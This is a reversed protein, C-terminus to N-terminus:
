FTIRYLFMPYFGQQYIKQISKTKANFSSNYINKHDTINTLDLAWEQTMKKGNMKYAIRGDLRFYPDEKVEYAKTDDYVTEGAEISKDLDIFLNRKGGSFIVRLNMDISSKENLQIEYGALANVVYNTNFETNRWVADSAKYKSDFLSTTLLFYYNNSLYKELTIEAGYNRALGENVLNEVKAQNFSNGSNVMSFLSSEKTIPINTLHQYYTEIKLKIQDSLQHDYGSVFHHAKTLDLNNNTQSYEGTERNYTETFYVYLPQIQAHKGYAFSVKAANPLTYSISARPDITQTQNYLFNIYHLGGYLTLNGNIRHQWEGFGEMLNLGSEETDLEMIYQNYLPPNFVEGSVSDKYNIVFSQWEIGAKFTNKSNIKRTYKSTLGFRTEANTEGFFIKPEADEFLTDIKTSVTQYTASLTTSINSKKDPFIRHTLGLIGLKSGNQTRADNIVDYTGSESETENFEIYSDGGIGFLAFTGVKQTPFNLRFTVDQYEPVGSGASSFGLKNMLSLVSYRYNVMYSSGNKKSIPGELGAEFGNFGIQGVFEHKKNNGNRMKLDFVGSLANGYESPFAGTFFDSNTLTNNNLISVPGGTSGLAGFHNPNPISIGELKWLLGQPSNGRIIIDNRSDNATIVGAFNSAMRSPDGWSGAYKETQKVSFSRASLAAMKNRTEGNKFAKVVVEDVDVVKEILEITFIKEKGSTLEINRIMQPEYGMFSVALNYRGIPINSFEFEGSENTITGITKSDIDITVTAGPLSVQSSKDIIIGRINQTYQANAGLLTTATLILLLIKKM